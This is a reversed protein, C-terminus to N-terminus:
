QFYIKTRKIHLMEYDVILNGIYTWSWGLGPRSEAM